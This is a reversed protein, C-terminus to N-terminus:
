RGYKQTSMNWLIALLIRNGVERIKLSFVPRLLQEYDAWVRKDWLGAWVVAWLGFNLKWKDTVYEITHINVFLPCKLVM